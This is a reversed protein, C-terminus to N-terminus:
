ENIKEEVNNKASGEALVKAVQEAMVKTIRELEKDFEEKSFINYKLCLSIITANKAFMDAILIEKPDIKPM